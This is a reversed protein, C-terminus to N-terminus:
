GKFIVVSRIVAKDMAEGVVVQANFHVRLSGLDTSSHSSASEENSREVTTRATTCATEASSFFEQRQSPTYSTRPLRKSM